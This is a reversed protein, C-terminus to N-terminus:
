AGRGICCRRSGRRSASGRAGPVGVRGGLGSGAAARGHLRILRDRLHLRVWALIVGSGTGPVGPQQGQARTKLRMLKHRARRAAGTTDSRLSPLRMSIKYGYTPTTSTCLRCTVTVARAGWGPFPRAPLGGAREAREVTLQQRHGPPQHDLPAHGMDRHLGGPRVPPRHVRRQPLDAPGTQHDLDDVGRVDLRDRAALGVHTVRLPQGLQHLDPQQPATEQRGLLDAPQPVEGAVLGLQGLLAAPLLLPQELDQFGGPDLQVVDGRVGEPHRSPRHQLRQHGPLTVRHHQRPQGAPDQAGLGAVQPQGQGAPEGGM